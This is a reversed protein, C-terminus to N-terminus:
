PHLSFRLFGFEKLHSREGDRESKRRSGAKIENSLFSPQDLAATPILVSYRASQSCLIIIIETAYSVPLALPLTEHKTM